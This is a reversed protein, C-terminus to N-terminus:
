FRFLFYDLKVSADSKGGETTKREWMEGKSDYCSM